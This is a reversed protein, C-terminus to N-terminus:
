KKHKSGSGYVKGMLQGIKKELKVIREELFNVKDVAEGAEIYAEGVTDMLEHIDVKQWLGNLWKVVEYQSQLASLMWKLEARYPM